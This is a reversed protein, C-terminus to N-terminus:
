ETKEAKYQIEELYNSYWQMMNRRDDLYKARNYAQSVASGVSHALQTEIVDHQYKAQEHAITSFIGRFSHAVVETRLYGMRRLGGVLTSDSMPTNKGRNSPFVLESDCSYTKAEELIRIVQKSLPVILEKKTKMKSAPIIWQKTDFNIEEWKALRLNTPRTFVHPLMMLALRTSSHARTKDETDSEDRIGYKSIVSLLTGLEKSDTILPYSVTKKKGIVDSLIIGYTPTANVENPFNSLAKGFVRSISSFTKRASEIAGREKMIHMIKIVDVAKVDNIYIDGIVPYVDKKFSKITRSIHTDSLEKSIEEIYWEAWEKFTKQIVIKGKHIFPNRNENSIISKYEERKTRAGALSVEPYVGLSKLYSKGDLKFRFRWWKGGNRNIELHMGRGDSMTYTKEKTKANRIQTDTLPKVIKSM